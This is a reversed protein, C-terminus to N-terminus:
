VGSHTPRRIKRPRQHPKLISVRRRRLSKQVTGVLSTYPLEVLPQSPQVARYREFVETIVVQYCNQLLLTDTERTCLSNISEQPVTSTKVRLFILATRWEPVAGSIATREASSDNPIPKEVFMLWLGPLGSMHSM